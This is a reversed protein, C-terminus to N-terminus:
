GAVEPALAPTDFRAPLGAVIGRAAIHVVAVKTGHEGGDMGGAGAGRRADVMHAYRDIM